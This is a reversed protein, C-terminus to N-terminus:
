PTPPLGVTWLNEMFRRNYVIDPSGDNFVNSDGLLVLNVGPVGSRSVFPHVYPEPTSFLSTGGVITTTADYFLTPQGATFGTYLDRTGWHSIHMISLDTALRVDVGLENCLRNVFRTTKLWGQPYGFPPDVWCWEGTLVLNGQWGLQTPPNGEPWWLTHAIPMSWIILRYDAINGTWTNESDVLVDMDQYVSRLYTLKGIIISEVQATWILARTGPPLVPVLQTERAHAQSEVFVGAQSAIPIGSNNAMNVHGQTAM